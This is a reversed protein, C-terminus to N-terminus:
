SSHHKLICNFRISRTFNDTESDYFMLGSSSLL